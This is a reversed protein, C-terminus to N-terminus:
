TIVGVCGFMLNHNRVMLNKNRNVDSLNTSGCEPKLPSDGKARRHSLCASPILRLKYVTPRTGTFM